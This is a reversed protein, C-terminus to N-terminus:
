VRMEYRTGMHTMCEYLIGVHATGRVWMLVWMLCISVHRGMHTM